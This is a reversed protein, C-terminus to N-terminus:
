IQISHLTKERKNGFYDGESVEGVLVYGLSEYFANLRDNDKQCDLRMSCKGHRVAMQECQELLITGVGPYQTSTVLHHVYFSERHEDYKWRADSEFLAVAAVVEDELKLVYMEGNEILSEFYCINYINLYNTENWQHLGREDMWEIRKCILKIIDELDRNEATCFVVDYVYARWM